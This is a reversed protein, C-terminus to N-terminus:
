VVEFQWVCSSFDDAEPCKHVRVEDDEDAVQYQGSGVPAATIYVSLPYKSDAIRILNLPIGSQMCSSLGGSQTRTSSFDLTFRAYDMDEDATGKRPATSM